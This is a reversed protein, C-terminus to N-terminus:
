RKFIGANREHAEELFEGMFGDDLRRYQGNRFQAQSIAIKRDIEKEMAPSLVPEGFEDVLSIWQDGTEGAMCDDATQAISRM